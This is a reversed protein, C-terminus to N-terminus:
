SRRRRVVRKGRKECLFFGRVWLFHPLLIKGAFLYAFRLDKVYLRCLYTHQLYLHKCIYGAIRKNKCLRSADRKALIRKAGRAPLAFGGDSAIMIRRYNEGLLVFVSITKRLLAFFPLIYVVVAFKNTPTAIYQRKQM